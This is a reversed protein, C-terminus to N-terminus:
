PLLRFSTFFTDIREPTLADASGLAVVQYLMEDVVYFRAALRAPRGAHVGQAGLMESRRLRRGPPAAARLPESGTVVGGINRLLGDRAWGLAADIQADDAAPLRLVSVAFLTAGVGASTTQMSLPRGAVVVERQVTQPRGPLAIACHAQAPQLERWDFAPACATLAVGLVCLRLGPWPLHLAPRRRRAATCPARRHSLPPLAAGAM